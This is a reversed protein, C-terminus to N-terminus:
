YLSFLLLLMEMLAYKIQKLRNNLLPFLPLSHFHYFERIFSNNNVKITDHISYKQVQTYSIKM